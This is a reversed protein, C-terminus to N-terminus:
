EVHFVVSRLPLLPDYNSGLALTTSTNLGGLQFHAEMQEDLEEAWNSRDEPESGRQDLGREREDIAQELEVGKKEMEQVEREKREVAKEREEVEKERWGVAEHRRVTEQRYGVAGAGGLGRM